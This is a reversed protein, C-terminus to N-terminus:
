GAEGSRQRNIMRSHVARVVDAIYLADEMKYAVGFSLSIMHRYLSETVPFDEARYGKMPMSPFDKFPSAAPAHALGEACYPQLYHCYTSTTAMCNVNRRDLEARFADSDLHSDFLLYCEIGSEGAPDNVPRPEIGELRGLREIFASQLTRCHERIRDLKGLQAVAVAATLESMRFQSGCFSKGSPKLRDHFAPRYMGIDHMRVAREFLEPDSTVVAGGEGCSITKWHQLSYTGIRGISGVRRGHYLAGISEACDEIVPLGARNAEAMIMDMNAPVGQFHVVLVAKTRSTAKRRIEAPEFCLSRDVETLVPRAGVRVIATFCSTWSWAPLLVEDGPGVGLAGLAIELAGTGNSVALAYKVDMVATLQAEFRAAYSNEGAAFRNLVQRELVCRVNELEEAGTWLRGLGVQPRPRMPPFAPARVSASKQKIETTM